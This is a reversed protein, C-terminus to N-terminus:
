ALELRLFNGAEAALTVVVSGEGPGDAEARQPIGLPCELETGYFRAVFSGAVINLLESLAQEASGYAEPDDCETGLMNAAAEVLLPRTAVIKLTRPERAGIAISAALARSAGPAGPHAGAGGTTEVFLFACDELVRAAVESLAAEATLTM